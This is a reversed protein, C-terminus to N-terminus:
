KFADSVTALSGLSDRWQQNKQQHNQHAQTSTNGALVAWLALNITRRAENWAFTLVTRGTDESLPGGHALSNRCRLLRNTLRRYLSVLEDVWDQLAHPSTTRAAVTRLTR